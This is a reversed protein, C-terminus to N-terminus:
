SCREKKLSRNLQTIAADYKVKDMTPYELRYMVYGTGGCHPIILAYFIRGDKTGSFNSVTPGPKSVYALNWGDQIEYNQRTKVEDAFGGDLIWGGYVAVEASKDATHFRRGDGADAEPDAVSFIKPVYVYYGYRANAYFEARATGVTMVLALVVIYVRM